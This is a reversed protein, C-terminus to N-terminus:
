TWLGRLSEFILGIYIKTKGGIYDEAWEFVADKMLHDLFRHEERNTIEEGLVPQEPSLSPVLYPKEETLTSSVAVLTVEVWM